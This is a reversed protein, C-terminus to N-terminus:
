EAEDEYQADCVPCCGDPRLWGDNACHDCGWEPFETIEEDM